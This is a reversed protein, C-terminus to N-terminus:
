GDRALQEAILEYTRHWATLGATYATLAEQLRTHDGGDAAGVVRGLAEVQVITVAVLEEHRQALSPPPRLADLDRAAEDTAAELRTFLTLLMEPDRALLDRAEDEVAALRLLYADVIKALDGTYADISAAGHPAVQEAGAAPEPASAGVCGALLAGVCLITYAGGGRM